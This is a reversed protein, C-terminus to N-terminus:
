YWALESLFYTNKQHSFNWEIPINSNMVFHLGKTHVINIQKRFTRYGSDEGYKFMARCGVAYRGHLLERVEREDPEGEIVQSKGVDYTM